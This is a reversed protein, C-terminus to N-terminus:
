KKADSVNKITEDKAEPKVFSFLDAPIVYEVFPSDPSLKVFFGESNETTAWVTGTAGNPLTLSEGINPKTM